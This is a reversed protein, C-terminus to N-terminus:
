KRRGFFIDKLGFYAISDKMNSVFRMFPNMRGDTVYQMTVIYRFEGARTPTVRHHVKDGNFLVLTGPRVQLAHEEVARGPQRTHLRCVLRSSSQDQFGVLLTWRRDKYYSTDYHWGIHDGEETYAYLACRHKDSDPCETMPSGALQQLLGLLSPSQYVGNISPALARVTDCGVSGGKKHKPIFNRHIHPKLRELEADWLTLIERPLFDEVVVFEDQDAYEAQLRKLDVSRCASELSAELIAPSALTSNM